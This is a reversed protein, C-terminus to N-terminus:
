LVVSRECCVVNRMATVVCRLVGCCLAVCREYCVARSVVCCLVVCCLVVCCIAACCLMVSCARWGVVRCLVVYCLVICWPTQRALVACYGALAFDCCCILACSWVCSSLVDSCCLVVSVVM